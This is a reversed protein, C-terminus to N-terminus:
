PVLARGLVVPFTLNFLLRFAGM